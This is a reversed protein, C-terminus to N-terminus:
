FILAFLRVNTRMYIQCHLQKKEYLEVATILSNSYATKM